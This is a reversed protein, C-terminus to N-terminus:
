RGEGRNVRDRQARTDSVVKDTVAAPIRKGTGFVWIGRDKRLPSSSRVPRLTVNEGESELELTDGPELRLEDRLTKPIVVRGAKDLTVTTNM